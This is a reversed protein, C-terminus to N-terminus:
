SLLAVIDQAAKPRSWARAADAMSTLREADGLLAAIQQRLDATDTEDERCIIAGGASVVAQANKVQQLDKHSLLPLYIAPRRAVALDCVTTAGSRTIVLHASPLAAPVDIFPEVSAEIRAAAYASAVRDHDEPRAQHTVRLRNRLEEPLGGLAAPVRDSVVRAGQSGGMIVIGLPDSAGPTPFPEAGIEIIAPRSPNGTVHCDGRAGETPDFTLAVANASRATVKNAAGMVSNQEHLVSPIGLQRAALVPGVSAYGGLGIVLDPKYDRLKTRAAFAGTVLRGLNRIRKTVSGTVLGGSALVDISSRDMDGVYALARDDCYLRVDVGREVLLERIALAPFVHGATGGAAVVVRQLESMTALTGAEAGPRRSM